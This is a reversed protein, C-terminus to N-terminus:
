TAGPTWSRGRPLERRKAREQIPDLGAQNDPHTVIALLLDNGEYSRGQDVVQVRESARDLAELYRVTQHHLTIREGLEHGTVEQFTPVQATLSPVAFLAAFLAAAVAFPALGLWTSSRM